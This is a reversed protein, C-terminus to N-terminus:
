RPARLVNKLQGYRLFYKIGSKHFIVFKSLLNPQVELTHKTSHIISLFIIFLYLSLSLSLSLSFHPIFVKQFTNPQSPSLFLIHHSESTKEGLGGFYKRGLIPFFFLSLIRNTLHVFIGGIAKRLLTPNKKKIPCKAEEEEKKRIIEEPTPM